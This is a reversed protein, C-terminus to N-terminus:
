NTQRKKYSSNLIHRIRYKWPLFAMFHQRANAVVGVCEASLKGNETGKFCGITKLIEWKSYDICIRNGSKNNGGTTYRSCSYLFHRTCERKDGNVSEHQQRWENLNKFVVSAICRDDNDNGPMAIRTRPNNYSHIDKSDYGASYM